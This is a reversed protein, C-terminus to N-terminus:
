AYSRLFKSRIEMTYEQWEKEEAGAIAQPKKPDEISAGYDTFRERESWLQKGSKFWRSMSDFSDPGSLIRVFVTEMGEHLAQEVTIGAFCDKHKSLFDITRNRLFDEFDESEVFMSLEREANGTPPMNYIRLRESVEEVRARCVIDSVVDWVKVSKARIQKSFISDPSFLIDMIQTAYEAIEHWMDEQKGTDNVKYAEGLLRVLNKFAQSLKDLRLRLDGDTRLRIGLVKKLAECLLLGRHDLFYLSQAVRKYAEPKNLFHERPNCLRGLHTSLINAHRKHPDVHASVPLLEMSAFKLAKVFAFGEPRNAEMFALLIERMSGGFDGYSVALLPVRDVQERFFVEITKAKERSTSLAGWLLLIGKFLERRTRANEETVRRMCDKASDYLQKFVIEMMKELAEDPLNGHVYQRGATFMIVSCMDPALRLEREFLEFFPEVTIDSAVRNWNSVLWKWMQERVIWISPHGLEANVKQTFDSFVELLAKIPYGRLIKETFLLIAAEASAVSLDELKFFYSEPFRKGKLREFAPTDVIQPTMKQERDKLWDRVLTGATEGFTSDTRQIYDFEDCLPCEDSRYLPMDTEFFCRIRFPVGMYNYILHYFTSKARGMRNVVAYFSCSEICTANRSARGHASKGKNVDQAAQRDGLYLARSLTEFTRATAIADDVILISIKTVDGSDHLTCYAKKMEERLLQPLMYYERPGLEKAKFAYAYAYKRDQSDLLQLIKQSLLGIHSHLPFVIFLKGNTNSCWDVIDRCIKDAIDSDEFLYKLRTVLSFHHDEYVFHGLRLVDYEELIKITENHNIASISEGAWLYEYKARTLAAISFPRLSYPEVWYRNEIPIAKLEKDSLQKPRPARFLSMFGLNRGNFLSRKEVFGGLQMEGGDALEILSLVMSTEIGASDLYDLIKNTTIGTDFVDQVVIVHESSELSKLVQERRVAFYHGVDLIHPRHHFFVRMANCLMLTPVTSCILMDPENGGLCICVHRALSEGIEQRFQEDDFLRSTEFFQQTWKRSHPLLFAMDENAGWHAGRPIDLLRKLHQVLGKDPYGSQLKQLSMRAKWNQLHEAKDAWECEFYFPNSKLITFLMAEDPPSLGCRVYDNRICLNRLTEEEQLLINLALSISGNPAGLWYIEGQTGVAPVVRHTHVLSTLFIKNEKERPTKDTCQVKGSFYDYEYAKKEFVFDRYSRESLEQVLSPQLGILVTRHSRVLNMLKDIIFAVHDAKVPMTSSFDLVLDRNAEAKIYERAVSEAKIAVEQPRHIVDGFYNIVPIIISPSHKDPGGAEEKDVLALKQFANTYKRFKLPVLVQFYTGFTEPVQTEEGEYGLGSKDPKLQYHDLRYTLRVGGSIVSLIGEYTNVLGIIRSLAHTDTVWREENCKRTGLEDFAFKLIQPTVSADEETPLKQGRLEQYRKKFADRLSVHIGQGPDCVCIEAFGEYVNDTVFDEFANGYTKKLWFINGDEPLKIVRMGVVGFWMRGKHNTQTLGAHEIVNLSLEANVLRSFRGFQFFDSKQIDDDLQSIWELIKMRNLFESYHDKSFIPRSPFVRRGHKPSPGNLAKNVSVFGTQIARTLLDSAGFYGLFRRADTDDPAVILINYGKCTIMSIVSALSISGMLTCFTVNSLDVKIVPGRSHFTRFDQVKRPLGTFFRGLALAQDLKLENGECRWTNDENDNM